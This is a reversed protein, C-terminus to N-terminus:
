GAGSARSRCALTGSSGIRRAIVTSFASAANMIARQPSGHFVWVDPAQADGEQHARPGGEGYRRGNASVKEIRAARDM